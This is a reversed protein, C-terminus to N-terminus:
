VVDHVLNQPPPDPQSATLPARDGDRHEPQQNSRSLMVYSQLRVGSMTQTNQTIAQHPRIWAQLSRLRRRVGGRASWTTRSQDPGQTATSAAARQSCPLDLHWNGSRRKTRM